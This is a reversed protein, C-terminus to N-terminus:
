CREPRINRSMPQKIRCYLMFIAPRKPLETATTRWDAVTRVAISEEPLTLASAIALETDAACHRLLADFLAQNRYPTEIFLQTQGTLRAHRELDEIRRQRLSAETPLYGNFAFSQGNMGSAMLALIISSPGILPCVRISQAHALRVLDAGPDAIAPCGAESVLGGDRGDRLPQLLAALEEKPLKASLVRIEIDQIRNVLPVTQAVNKLFARASKANEVVFYDLRAALHLVDQSLVGAAPITGLPTPILYLNGSM